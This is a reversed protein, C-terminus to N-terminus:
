VHLEISFEFKPFIRSQILELEPHRDVVYFNWLLFVSCVDKNHPTWQLQKQFSLVFIQQNKM